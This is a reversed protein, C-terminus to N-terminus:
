LRFHFIESMQGWIFCWFPLFTTSPTIMCGYGSLVLRRTVCILCAQNFPTWFVWDSTSQYCVASRHSGISIIWKHCNIVCVCQITSTMVASAVHTKPCRCSAATSHLIEVWCLLDLVLVASKETAPFRCLSGTRWHYNSINKHCSYEQVWHCRRLMLCFRMIMGVDSSTHLRLIICNFILGVTINDSPSLIKFFTKM